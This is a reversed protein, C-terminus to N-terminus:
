FTKLIMLFHLPILFFYKDALLSIQHHELGVSHVPQSHLTYVRACNQVCVRMCVHVCVCVCVCACM